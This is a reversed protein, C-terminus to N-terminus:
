DSLAWVALGGIVAGVATCGAAVWGLTENQKQVQRSLHQSNSEWRDARARQYSAEGRLRSNSRVLERTFYDM